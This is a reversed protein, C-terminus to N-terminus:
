LDTIRHRISLTLDSRTPLNRTHIRPLKTASKVAADIKGNGQVGRHSPVWISTISISIYNLTFLLTHIRSILPHTSSTISIASLSSLSDSCILFSRSHSHPLSLINELCQFISTTGRNSNIRLLRTIKDNISYTFGV